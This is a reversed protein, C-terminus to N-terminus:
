ISSCLLRNTAPEGDSLQHEWDVCPKHCVFHSQFQNKELKMYIEMDTDCWSLEFNM